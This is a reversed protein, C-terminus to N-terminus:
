KVANLKGTNSLFATLKVGVFTLFKTIKQYVLFYLEFEANEFKNKCNKNIKEVNPFSLELFVWCLVGSTFM